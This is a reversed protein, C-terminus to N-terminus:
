EPLNSIIIVGNGVGVQSINSIGFEALDDIEIWEDSDLPNYRLLKSGQAIIFSGDPLMDFQDIGTPLEVVSKKKLFELDYRKILWYDSRVKHVYFFQTDTFKVVRPGVNAELIKFSADSEYAVALYDLDSILNLIFADNDLSIATNINSLITLIQEAQIANSLSHITLISESYFKQIQIYSSNGIFRPHDDHRNNNTLIELTSENIDLLILETANINGLNANASYIVLNQENIDFNGNFGEQNFDSLFHVGSISFTDNTLAYDMSYLHSVSQDQGILNISLCACIVALKYM